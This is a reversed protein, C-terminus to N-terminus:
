RITEEILTRRKRQVLPFAPRVRGNRPACASEMTIRQLLDEKRFPESFCNCPAVGARLYLSEPCAQGLVFAPPKKHLILGDNLRAIVGDGGWPIEAEVVLVDPEAARLDTMCDLGNAVAMVLFGNEFFFHRLENCRSFDNDAILLIADMGPRAAQTGFVALEDTHSGDLM